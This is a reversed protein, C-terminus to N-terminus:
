LVCHKGISWVRGTMEQMHQMGKGAVGQFGALPEPLAPAPTNQGSHAKSLITV